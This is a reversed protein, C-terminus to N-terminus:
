DTVTQRVTKVKFVSHTRYSYVLDVASVLTINSDSVLMFLRVKNNPCSRKLGNYHVLTFTQTVNASNHNPFFEEMFANLTIIGLQEPDLKEVM